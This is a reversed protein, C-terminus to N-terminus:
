HGLFFAVGAFPMFGVDHDAPANFAPFHAVYNVYRLGYAFEFSGHRQTRQAMADVLSAAEVDLVSSYTPLCGPCPLIPPSPNQLRTNQLGRMSPSAAITLDTVARSTAEVRVRASLRLGTVRSAQETVSSASYYTIQNLISTGAGFEFRNNPTHWAIVANFYGLKTSQTGGFGDAYQIPGIPPV